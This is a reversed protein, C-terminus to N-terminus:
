IHILSLEDAAGEAGDKAAESESQGERDGREHRITRRKRPKTDKGRKGQGRKGQGRHPPAGILM